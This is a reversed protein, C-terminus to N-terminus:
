SARPKQLLTPLLPTKYGPRAKTPIAGVGSWFLWLMVYVPKLRRKKFLNNIIEKAGLFPIPYKDIQCRSSYTRSMELGRYRTDGSKIGEPAQYHFSLYFWMRVKDGYYSTMRDVFIPELDLMLEYLPFNRPIGTIRLAGEVSRDKGVFTSTDLSFTGNLEVAVSSLVTKM